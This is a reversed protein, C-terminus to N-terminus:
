ANCMGSGPYCCRMLRLCMPRSAGAPVALLYFLLGVAGALALWWLYQLNESRRNQVQPLILPPQLACMPFPLPAQRVARM